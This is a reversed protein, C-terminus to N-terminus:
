LGEKQVNTEVRPRTGQAERKSNLHKQDEKGGNNLGYGVDNPPDSGTLRWTTKRHQFVIQPRGHHPWPLCQHERAQGDQIGAFIRTEM